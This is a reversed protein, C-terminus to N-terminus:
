TPNLAPHLASVLNQHLRTQWEIEVRGLKVDGSVSLRQKLQVRNGQGTQPLIGSRGAAVTIIAGVLGVVASAALVQLLIDGSMNMQNIFISYGLMYIIGLYAIWALLLTGLPKIGGWLSGTIVGSAAGWLLLVNLETNQQIAGLIFGAIFGWFFGTLFLIVRWIHCGFFCQVFGLALFLFNFWAPPEEPLNPLNM